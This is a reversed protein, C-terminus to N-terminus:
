AGPQGGDLGLLYDTTCRFLQAMKVLADSPIPTEGRVYNYYTKPSIGLQTAVDEKTMQSRVREAEINVRM